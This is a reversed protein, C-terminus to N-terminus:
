EDLQAPSRPEIDVVLIKQHLQQVAQMHVFDSLLTRDQKNCRVSLARSDNAMDADM